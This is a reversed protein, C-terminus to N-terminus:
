CVSVCFSVFCTNAFFFFFVLPYLVVTLSSKNNSFINSINVDDTRLMNALFPRRKVSFLASELTQCQDLPVQISLFMIPLSLVSRLALECPISEMYTKQAYTSFMEDSYLYASSKREM